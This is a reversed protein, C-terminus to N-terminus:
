RLKETAIDKNPKSCTYGGCSWLSIVSPNDPLSKPSRLLLYMVLNHRQYINGNSLFAPFLIAISNTAKPKQNITNHNEYKTSKYNLISVIYVNYVNGLYTYPPLPNTVRVITFWIKRKKKTAM